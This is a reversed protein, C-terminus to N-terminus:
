PGKSDRWNTITDRLYLSFKRLIYGSRVVLQICFVIIGLYVWVAVWPHEQAACVVQSVKSGGCSLQSTDLQEGACGALVSVLIFISTIFVTRIM